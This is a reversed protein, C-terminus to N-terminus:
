SRARAEGGGPVQVADTRDFLGIRYAQELAARQSDVGLKRYLGAVQKKVTSLALHLSKAMEPQTVQQDLLRLLESERPTLDVLLARAPFGGSLARARRDAEGPSLELCELLEVWGPQRACSALLEARVRQPLMALPVLTCAHRLETVAAACARDVAVRDGQCHQGAAATLWGGARERATARPDHVVVDVHRLAQEVRGGMLLLGAWCDHPPAFPSAAEALLVARARQAQGQALLGEARVRHLIRRALPSLRGAGIARGILQAHASLGTANGSAVDVWHRVWLVVPWWESEPASGDLADLLARARDVELRDLALMAEVTGSVVSFYAYDWVEGFIAQAQALYEVARSRAGQLECILGMLAYAFAPVYDGYGPRQWLLTVERLAELAETARDMFFLLIGQELKCFARNRDSASRGAARDTQLLLQLEDLTQLAGSFDGRLRQFRMWNVGMHLRADASSLERWGAGLSATQETVQLSLREVLLDTHEGEPVSRLQQLPATSEVYVHALWLGPFRDLVPEPLDGFALQVAVPDTVLIRMGMRYWFEELEAWEGLNRHQIALESLLPEDAATDAALTRLTERLPARFENLAATTAAEDRPMEAGHPAASYRLLEHTLLDRMEEPVVFAGPDRFGIRPAPELYGAAVFRDLASADPHMASAVAIRDRAASFRRPFARQLVEISRETVRHFLLFHSAYAFLVPALAGPPAGLPPRAATDVYEEM